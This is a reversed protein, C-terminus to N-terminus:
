NKPVPAGYIGSLRYQGDADKIVVVNEYFEGTTYTSRFVIVYIDGDVNTSPDHNFHSRSVVSLSLLNGLMPRQVAMNSLFGDQTWNRHGWDSTLDTWAYQFKQAAFARLINEAAQQADAEQATSQSMFGVLSSVVLGCRAMASVQM